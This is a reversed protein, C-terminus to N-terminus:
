YSCLRRRLHSIALLHVFVAPCIKTCMASCVAVDAWTLYKFTTFFCTKSLRSSDTDSIKNQKTKNAM